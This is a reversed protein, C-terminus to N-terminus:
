QWTCRRMRRHGGCACLKRWPPCSREAGRCARGPARGGCIRMRGPTHRSGSIAVSRGRAGACGAHVSCIEMCSSPSAISSIAPSCQPVWQWKGEPHEGSIHVCPSTLFKNSTLDWSLQFTSCLQLARCSASNVHRMAQVARVLLAAAAAAAHRECRDGGVGASSGPGSSNGLGQRGHATSLCVALRELADAAAVRVADSSDDLRKLLAPALANIALAAAGAAMGDPGEGAAADRADAMHADVGDDPSHAAPSIASPNSSLTGLLDGAAAAAAARSEAYLDEDLMQCLLPLLAADAALSALDAQLLLWAHSCALLM